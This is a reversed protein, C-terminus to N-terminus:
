PILVTRGIAEGSELEALARVAQDLPYTRMVRPTLLGTDIMELVERVDIISAWHSGYIEIERFVIDPVVAHFDVGPRYGVLALRGGLELCALSDALTQESSVLDVVVSAGRGGTLERVQQAFGTEDIMIIEHAGEDRLVQQRRPDTDVAVVRAGIRAAIQVTHIGVGGGAGVVVVTEGARLKVRRVLARYPTVMSCTAIAAGEMTTADGLPLFLREPVTVYESYGGAPGFGYRTGLDVCLSTRGDICYMCKGCSVYGYPVGRTGPTVGTVASGVEEVTGALEHGLVCPLVVPVHGDRIKLDTRCVGAAEIRILVEDPRPQPREIDLLQPDRGFETVVVARM